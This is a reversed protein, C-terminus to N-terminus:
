SSRSIQEKLEAGGTIELHTKMGAHIDSSSEHPRTRLEEARRAELFQVVDPLAWCSSVVLSSKKLSTDM